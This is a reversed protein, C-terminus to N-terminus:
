SGSGDPTTRGQLAKELAKLLANDNIPKTVYGNMGADLCADLQEKIAGATLALIPVSRKEPDPLQRIKRTAEHGDMVPMLIDMLIVDYDSLQVKDLAQQGNEVVDVEVNQVHMELLETIVIRNLEVDEVVLIKLDALSHHGNDPTHQSAPAGTNKPFPLVFKFTSGKGLTSDVQLEGKQQEILQKVISLGLGTGGYQTYIGQEGQHFSEFIRELHKEAIGMGTDSVAFDLWMTHDTERSKSINIQVYGESTFKIANGALNLFIQRLRVEDGHLYIPINKDINVRMKLGKEEAKFRLTQMTQDLVLRIDFPQNIFTFQGAEIKAYDLLDDVIQVLNESSDRIAGNFQNQRENLDTNELLRSMGIIANMPTRIEHSINALFKSKYEDAREAIEKQRQLQLQKRRARYFAILVGLALIILGLRFALTQTFGPQVDLKVALPTAQAVTNPTGARVNFTYTGPSLNTFTAETDDGVNRWRKDFGDLMVEYQISRTDRYDLCGYSFTILKDSTSMCVDDQPLSPRGSFLSEDSVIVDRLFVHYRSSDRKINEPHFAIIGNSCPFLITGDTTQTSNGIIIDDGGHVAYSQYLQNEPRFRSIGKDGLWIDGHQDIQFSTMNRTLLGEERSYTTTNNATLDIRDIQGAQGIWLSREHYQIERSDSTPTDLDLSTTSFVESDPDFTMIVDAGTIWLNGEDDQVIRDLSNASLLPLHQLPFFHQQIKNKYEYKLLGQSSTIWIVDNRTKDVLIRFDDRLDIDESKYLSTMAQLSQSVPHYRYIGAGTVGIWIFGDADMVFDSVPLYKNREWPSPAIPTPLAGPHQKHFIGRMTNIWVGGRPDGYLFLIYNCLDNAYETIPLIEFNRKEPAIKRVGDFLGVWVIDRSDKFLTYTAQPPLDGKIVPPNIHVPHGNVKDWLLYEHRYSGIMFHSPSYDIIAGFGAKNYDGGLAITDYSGSVTDFEWLGERTTLWFKGNGTDYAKHLDLGADQVHPLDDIPLVQEALQDDSDIKFLGRISTVWLNGQRDELFNPNYRGGKFGATLLRLMEGTQEDYQSLGDVCGAWIRGKSDEFVDIVAGKAITTSDAPDHIFRMFEGTTRDLLNLGSRTGIWIRGKSDCIGSYTWSSSLSTSDGPEHTFAMFDYGNYKVAATNTCFWIFGEDDEFIDFVHGLEQGNPKSIHEYKLQFQSFAAFTSVLLATCVVVVRLIQIPGRM